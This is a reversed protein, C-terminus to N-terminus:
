SFTPTSNTEATAASRASALLASARSDSASRLCTTPPRKAQRNASRVGLLRQRLRAVRRFRRRTRPRLPPPQQTTRHDFMRYLGALSLRQRRGFLPFAKM